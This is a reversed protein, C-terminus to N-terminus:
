IKRARILKALAKYNDAIFDCTAALSEIWDEVSKTTMGSAEYLLRLSTETVRDVERHQWGIHSYRLSTFRGEDYFEAISKNDMLEERKRTFWGKSNSM